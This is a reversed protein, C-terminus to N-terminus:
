LGTNPRKHHSTHEGSLDNNSLALGIMNSGFQDASNASLMSSNNDSEKWCQMVDGTLNNGSLDLQLLGTLQCMSSPITGTIQNNALLLTQLLPAKIESLLSGSFSNSSLDLYLINIPLWPFQGTLNNALLSGRLKNGSLILDSARSFTVWFWDPIVDDLNANGLDLYNIDTQWKLWKPFHPGLRCSDLVLRFLRFPPVWNPEIVLKLSNYSLDLLGLNLLGSFHEKTLVGSLKNFGFDLEALNRLSGIGLPITGTISNESALLASLSTMNGIWIPLKGTMGNYEVSLVQITSWSCRPLRDMFEGISANINNEEFHLVKLHCLNELYGPILGVVDNSSLNIVQISTMNGLEKPISGHWYCSSLYLEKLSTLDWFWNHELSTNFPNSSPDLVELQSLNSKSSASMTSTLGCRALRLTKISALMNVIHAWGRVDPLRVYSMDLNTLLSLHSLWALDIIYLGNWSVDLYELNSLNGLQSPIKGVFGSDSLNLYRLNELSGMSVPINTNIFDNSSLDLHRLQQLASLSPSMEVGSLRLSYKDPDDDPTNCNRLDLKVVHGTRNSCRVGKWQCCDVGHWSSLRGSPDLLDAKFSLLADRERSICTKAGGPGKTQSRSDSTAVHFILLCFIAAAGRALHGLEVAMNTLSPLSCSALPIPVIISRSSHTLQDWVALVYITYIIISNWTM